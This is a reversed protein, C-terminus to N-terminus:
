PHTLSDGWTTDIREAVVQLEGYAAALAFHAPTTLKLRAVAEEFALGNAIDTRVQTNFVVQALHASDAFHDHWVASGPDAGFCARDYAYQVVGSCIWRNVVRPVGPTRLLLKVRAVLAAVPSAVWGFLRRIIGGIASFGYGSDIEELAFGRTRRLFDPRIDSPISESPLRLVAMDHNENYLYKDIPHIDVGHPQAEIIFTRRYGQQQGSAGDGLVFVLAVHNWHSRTAWRILSAVLGRDHTLVIDARELLNAVQDTTLTATSMGVQSELRVWTVWSLPRQHSVNCPQRLSTLPLNDNVHTHAM